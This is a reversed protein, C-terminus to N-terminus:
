LLGHFSMVARCINWIVSLAFLLVSLFFMLWVIKRKVPLSRAAPSLLTWFLEKEKTSLREDDEQLSLTFRRGKHLIPIYLDRNLNVPKYFKDKEEIGFSKHQELLLPTARCENLPSLASADYALGKDILEQVFNEKNELSDFYNWVEWMIWRHAHKKAEYEGYNHYQKVFKPCFAQFAVFAGLYSIAFLWIIWLSPPVATNTYANVPSNVFFEYATLIIPTTAIVTTAKAVAANNILKAAFQWDRGYARSVPIPVYIQSLKASKM